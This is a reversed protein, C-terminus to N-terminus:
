RDSEDPSPDDPPPPSLYIGCAVRHGKEAYEALDRDSWSGHSYHSCHLCHYVWRGEALQYVM